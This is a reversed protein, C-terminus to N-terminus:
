EDPLKEFIYTILGSTLEEYSLNPNRDLAIKVLEPHRKSIIDQQLYYRPKLYLISSPIINRRKFVEILEFTNMRPYSLDEFFFRKMEDSRESHFEDIYDRYELDNMICHGWPISSTAYRHPGLYSFFSRHKIILKGNINLSDALELAFKRWNPVHEIAKCYIYDFKRFEPLKIYQDLYLKYELYNSNQKEYDTKLYKYKNLMMDRVISLDNSLDSKQWSTKHGGHLFPDIGVAHILPSISALLRPVLGNGTGVDLLTKIQDNDNESFIVNYIEIAQKVIREYERLSLSELVESPSEWYNTGKKTPNLFALLNQELNVPLDINNPISWYRTSQKNVM